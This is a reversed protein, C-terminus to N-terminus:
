SQIVSRILCWSIGKYSLYDFEIPNLQITIHSVRAVMDLPLKGKHLRLKTFEIRPREATVKDCLGGAMSGAGSGGGCYGRGCLEVIVDFRVPM